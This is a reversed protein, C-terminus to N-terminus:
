PSPHSKLKVELPDKCEILLSAITKKLVPHVYDSAIENMPVLVFKREQLFPHPIKLEPLDILDNNYFLIDIDIIREQWKDNTRTRGIQEEIKLTSKLLDGASLETEVLIAQNYFEPQEKNGWAATIFISSKKPTSGIQQEILVNAQHLNQEKDGLNGGLLLFCRNM